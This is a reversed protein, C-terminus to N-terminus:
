INRYIEHQKGKQHQPNEKGKEIDKNYLMGKIIDLM